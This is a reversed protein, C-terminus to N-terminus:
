SCLSIVTNPVEVQFTIIWGDLINKRSETFQQLSPNESATINNDEFDKLMLLWIRNIVSLTENLNDVENDNDFFKDTNIEKNIDRIDFAGIQCDFRIVSDSPFAANGVSVHLLPFINKKELDIDAFDGQTITNIFVDREALSKIYRLLESYGNM